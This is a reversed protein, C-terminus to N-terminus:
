KYIRILEEFKSLRERVPAGIKVGYANSARALHIIFNDGTEGSRHSVICEIEQARAVKIAECSESITGIQNPKIIVGNIFRRKGAEGITRPDTVTLDDGVVLKGKASNLLAGFSRGDDESFPDEMSCLSESEKFYDSYVALLEKSDLFQGGFKYRGDRYFSSAAVDIGVSFERELKSGLIKKELIRIPEFNNKFNLSYGGEDGLAIESLNNEKKLSEGLSGYFSVLKEFSEAISEKAEVVALYEQIDLNNEAHVGGNILNSFIRPLRMGSDPFFERRLVQWIEAEQEAALGRSLAISCGLILNGGIREKRSTGDLEILLSDLAGISDFVRGVVEKKLIERAAGAARGYPLATAERSGRSKGSPIQASFKKDKENVLVVEITPEGRSDFIEKVLIDKITM